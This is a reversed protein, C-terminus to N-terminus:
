ILHCYLKKKKARVTILVHSSLICSIHMTHYFFFYITLPTPMWKNTRSRSAYVPLSIFSGGRGGDTTILWGSACSPDTFGGRSSDTKLPPVEAVGRSDNTMRPNLVALGHKRWTLIIQNSFNFAKIFSGYALYFRLNWSSGWTGAM